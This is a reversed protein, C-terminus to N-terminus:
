NKQAGSVKCFARFNLYKNESINGQIRLKAWTLCTCVKESLYHM